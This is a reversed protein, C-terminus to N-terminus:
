GAIERPGRDGQFFALEPRAGFREPYIAAIAEALEAEGECRLLFVACGGFGAGTLRAGLVSPCSEAIEVLCDLEPVSVEFLDRLSRHAALMMRGFTAPDGAALAARARETRLVEELVHRARREIPAALQGACAALAELPVDRLCTAGPVARALVRFAERCEDVRRNFEGQALERRVGTDAVGVSLTRMDLPLHEYTEDRCDLALIHGERALGVAYPDMIGCQVGVFGREAELAVRVRDLAGLDLELLRDLAFATGVCISASSSLGAAVPLNGGFLIELGPLAFGRALLGRLVGLPYDVWQGLPVEPLEGVQCAFTTPAHTSALAIREDRRRRLAIFTGRDIAMPMVAGGNYDLHAGMLNVRGPSFFLRPDPGPGFHRGFALAHPRVLQARLDERPGAAARPHAASAHASGAFQERSTM